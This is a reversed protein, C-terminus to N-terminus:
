SSGGPVANTPHATCQGLPKPQLVVMRPVCGHTHEEGAWSRRGRMAFYNNRLSEFDDAARDHAM